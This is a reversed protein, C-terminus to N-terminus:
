GHGPMDQMGHHMSPMGPMHADVGAPSAAMGTAAVASVVVATLLLVALRGLTRRGTREDDQAARRDDRPHTDALRALVTVAFGGAVQLVSATADGTGVTGHTWAAVLLWGAGAVVLAPGALRAAPLARARLTGLAWGLEALGVGLPVVLAPRGDLSRVLSLNVLAAGLVVIGVATTTTWGPRGARGARGLPVASRAALPATTVPRGGTTDTAM